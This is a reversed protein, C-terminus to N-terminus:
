EEEQECKEAPPSVTAGNLSQGLCRPEGLSAGEPLAFSEDVREEPQELGGIPDDRFQQQEDEKADPIREIM